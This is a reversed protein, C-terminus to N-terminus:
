EDCRAIRIGDAASQLPFQLWPAGDGHEEGAKSVGRGAKMSEPAPPLALRSCREASSLFAAAVTPQM